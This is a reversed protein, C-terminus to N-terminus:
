IACTNPHDYNIKGKYHHSQLFELLLHPMSEKNHFMPTSIYKNLLKAENGISKMLTSKPISTFFSEFDLELISNNQKTCKILEEKFHLYEQITM